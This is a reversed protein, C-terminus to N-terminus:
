TYSMLVLKKRDIEKCYMSANENHKHGNMDVPATERAEAEVATENQTRDEPGMSPVVIAVLSWFSDVIAHEVEGVREPGVWRVTLFCFPFDLVSLGLYVGVAAYGYRRSLEKFRQSYTQAAQNGNEATAPPTPKDSNWRTNRTRQFASRPWRSLRTVLTARFPSTSIFARQVGPQLLLPKSAAFTRSSPPPPHIAVRLPSQRLISLLTRSRLM